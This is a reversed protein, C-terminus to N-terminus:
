VQRVPEFPQATHPGATAQPWRWVQVVGEAPADRHVHLRSAVQSALTPLMQMLPLAEDALQWFSPSPQMKLAPVVTQPGCWVQLAAVPWHPHLAVAQVVVPGKQSGPLTDVQLL